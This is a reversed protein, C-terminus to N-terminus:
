ANKTRSVSAGNVVEKRNLEKNLYECVDVAQRISKTRKYTKLMERLVDLKSIKPKPLDLQVQIPKSVKPTVKRREKYETYDKSRKVTSVTGTGRQMMKAVTNGDYGKALLQKIAIYEDKSVRAM